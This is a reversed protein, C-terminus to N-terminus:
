SLVDSILMDKPYRPDACDMLLRKEVDAKTRAAHLVVNGGACEVRCANTCEKELLQKLKRHGFARPDPFDGCDDPFARAYRKKLSGLALGDPQELLVVLLKAEFRGLKSPSAGLLTGVKDPDRLPNGPIGDVLGRYLTVCEDFKSADGHRDPHHALAAARFARTLSAQDDADTTVGSLAGLKAAMAERGPQAITALYRIVETHGKERALDAAYNGHHDPVERRGREEVLWKCLKLHGSFAAKHLPEHGQANVLAWGGPLSAEVLAELWACCRLHAEVEVSSPALAIWHLATCGFNNVRAPDVDPRAALYRMAGEQVQWCALQFPTVDADALADAEAGFEEILIRCVAVRGNRAAYHLPTRGNTTQKQSPDCGQTILYRACDVHGSGCAWHLATCGHADVATMLLDENAELFAKDGRSAADLVDAHQPKSKRRGM